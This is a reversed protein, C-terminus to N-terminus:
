GGGGGGAGGGGAGGGAPALMKECRLALVSGAFEAYRQTVLHAKTSPPEAGAGAKPLRATLVSRVQRSLLSGCRQWLLLEVRHFFADLCVM